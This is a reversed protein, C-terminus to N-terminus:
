TPTPRGRRRRSLDIPLRLDKNRLPNRRDIVDILDSLFQAM